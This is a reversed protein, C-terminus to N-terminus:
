PAGPGAAPIGIELPRNMIKGEDGWDEASDVYEENVTASRGDGAAEGSWFNQTDTAERLVTAAGLSTDYVVASLRLGYGLPPFSGGERIDDIRTFMFRVPDVWVLTGRLGDLAALLEMGEFRYVSYTIDPRVASGGVLVFAGGDPRLVVEQADTANELALAGLCAGGEGFFLLAVLGGEEDGRDLVAWARLPGAEVENVEAEIVEAEDDETGTAEVGAALAGDLHVAGDRHSFRGPDIGDASSGAPGMLLAAAMLALSASFAIRGMLREVERREKSGSRGSRAPRGIKSAAALAAPWPPRELGRRFGSGLDPPRARPRKGKPGPM